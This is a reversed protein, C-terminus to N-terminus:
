GVGLLLQNKYAGIAGGGGGGGGFSGYAAIPMGLSGATSVSGFPDVLSGSSLSYVHTGADSLLDIGSTVADFGIALWYTGAPLFIPSIAFIAQQISNPVLSIDASTTLKASPAGSVNTYIGVRCTGGLSYAQIWCRMENITIGGAPVTVQMAARANSYGSDRSAGQTTNGVHDVAPPAGGIQYPGIDSGSRANGDFDFTPTFASDGAAKCPSSSLPHFDSDPNTSSYSTLLPDNNLLTSLEQLTSTVFGSTVKIAGGPNSYFCNNKEINGPGLQQQTGASGDLLVHIGYNFNFAIINNVIVNDQDGTEPYTTTLGIGSAYTSSPESGSGGTIPNTAGTAAPYGLGGWGAVINHAFICGRASNHWTMNYSDNFVIINNYIAGGISGPTNGGTTGGYYIGHDHLGAPSGPAPAGSTNSNPPIDPAGIHHMFNSIIQVNTAPYHVTSYVGGGAYIGGAGWHRIECNFVEVDSGGPCAVAATGTGGSGETANFDPYRGDFVLGKKGGVNTGMYRIFHGANNHQFSQNVLVREGPYNTIVLPSDSSFAMNHGANNGVFIYRSAGSVSFPSASGPGRNTITCGTGRLFIFTPRSVGSLVPVHNIAYQITKWPLSISGRGTSDIGNVGDVYYSDGAAAPALSMRAPLSTPAAM